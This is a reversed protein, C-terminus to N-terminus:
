RTAWCSSKQQALLANLSHLHKTTLRVTVKKADLHVHRDFYTKWLKHFEKNFQCRSGYEYRYHLHIVQSSDNLYQLRHSLARHIDKFNFCQQRFKDYMSQDMSYHLDNAQFYDFFHTVRSDVFHLSYGNALYALELHVRQQQFDQVSSCYCVARLLATRIWDSHDVKSHGVVYPLTHAQRTSDQYLRTFLQGHHNSVVADCFPVCTDISIRTQIQPYQQEFIQLLHELENKFGNWTFFVRDKYSSSLRCHLMLFIQQFRRGAL